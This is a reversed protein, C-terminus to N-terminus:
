IEGQDYLAIVAQVVQPDFWVAAYDRIEKIAKEKSFGKRYPRDSTMADYADAAAIIAAILPIDKGKLGDPYGSGDFHEHHHRVGAVCGDFDRINALIEAGREPHTRIIRFEEATLKDQKLLISEPVAIKGIDHLLSAIYLNEFFKPTAQALNTDVMKRAIAVAYKTVRETHGHTYSDKAEIASGLAITTQIFLNRSRDAEKKLDEFLLANRIAMAVDSALAAFFDLEEQEMKTGDKKEGLLLVALLQHQYFAPVCAVSNLMPMHESVQHLLDRTGNVGEIVSERWILRNIDDAVLAHRNTILYKYEKQFFVKILPHDRDFRIFNEPIREGADGRSVTLIYSDKAPEYLIMGAHSLNVKRVIMRVLLKILLVHDHIMIMGKSASELEKKYDIRAALMTM